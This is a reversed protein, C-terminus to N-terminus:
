VWRRVRERYRRFDAGYAAAIMVEERRAFLRDLLIVFGPLLILGAVADLALMLSAMVLVDGLYIPNRSFAFPGTTVLADPRRGPMVTTRARMMTGAAWIMLAVGTGFLLFGLVRLIPSLPIPLVYGLGLGAASFVALWIQPLALLRSM